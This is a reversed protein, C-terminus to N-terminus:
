HNRVEQASPMRNKIPTGLGGLAMMKIQDRFTKRKGGAAVKWAGNIDGRGGKRGSAAPRAHAGGQAEGKGRRAKKQNLSWPSGGTTPRSRARGSRGGRQCLEVGV